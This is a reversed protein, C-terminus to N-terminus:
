GLPPAPPAATGTTLSPVLTFGLGGVLRLIEEADGVYALRHGATQNAALYEDREGEVTALAEAVAEAPTLETAATM